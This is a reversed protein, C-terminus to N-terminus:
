RPVIHSALCASAFLVKATGDDLPRYRSDAERSAWFGPKNDGSRPSAIFIPLAKPYPSQPSLYPLKRANRLGWVMVSLVTADENGGRSQKIQHGFTAAQLPYFEKHEVLRGISSHAKKFSTRPKMAGQGCVASWATKPVM